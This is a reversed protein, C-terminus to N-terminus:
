LHPYQPFSLKVSKSLTGCCNILWYKLRLDALWQVIQFAVINEACNKNRAKPEQELHETRCKVYHFKM